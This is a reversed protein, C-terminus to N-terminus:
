LQRRLEELQLTYYEILMYKDKIVLSSETIRKVAFYYKVEKPKRVRPHSNEDRLERWVADKLIMDAENEKSSLERNNWIKKYVKLLMEYNTEM